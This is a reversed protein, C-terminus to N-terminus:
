VETIITKAPNPDGGSIVASILQGSQDIVKTKCPRPDGGSIVVSRLKTSGTLPGEGPAFWEDYCWEDFGSEDLVSM